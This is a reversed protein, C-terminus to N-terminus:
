NQNKSKNTLNKNKKQTKKKSSLMKNDIAGVSLLFPLAGQLGNLLSRGLGNGSKLPM